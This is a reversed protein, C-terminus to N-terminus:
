DCGDRDGRRFHRRCPFRLSRDSAVSRVWMGVELGLGHVAGVRRHHLLVEADFFVVGVGEDEVAHAVEVFEEVVVRAAGAFQEADADGRAALRRAFGDRHRADRHMGNIGIDGFEDFLPLAGDDAFLDAIRREGFPRDLAGHGADDGGAGEGVFGEQVFVAVVDEGADGGAFLM